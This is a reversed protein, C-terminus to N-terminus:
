KYLLYPERRKAFDEVDKAYLAKIEELPKDARIAEYVDKNIWLLNARKFNFQEPYWRHLIKGISIGIDVVDCNERDTLVIGVGACSQNAFVSSKPTFRVPVFRVGKLGIKNLEYALKIDHIYPAGLIEFPTDTGRGVSVGCYELV